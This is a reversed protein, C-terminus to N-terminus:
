YKTSQYGALRTIGLFEQRLEAVHCDVYNIGDFYSVGKFVEAVSDRVFYGQLFVVCV